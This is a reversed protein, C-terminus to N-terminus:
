FGLKEKKRINAVTEAIVEKHVNEELFVDHVEVKRELRIAESASGAIVFKRVIYLRKNKM